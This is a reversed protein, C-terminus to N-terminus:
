RKPFLSGRCKSKFRCAHCLTHEIVMYKLNVFILLYTCNQEYNLVSTPNRPWFTCLIKLCKFYIQCFNQFFLFLVFSKVSIHTHTHTHTHARVRTRTHTSLPIRSKTIGHVTAERGMPNGLCSYQLPNGNGEEPYRGLGPISGMIIEHVAPLNKVTQCPRSHAQYNTHCVYYFFVNKLVCFLM